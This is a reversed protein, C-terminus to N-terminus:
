DAQIINNEVKFKVDLFKEITYINAFVHPTIESAYIKGKFLALFPLLQDALFRDVCAKSSIQLILGEAAKQGIHESSVGREGITDFGLRIPNQMNIEDDGFNAILTIISGTSLSNCYDASIQIPVKYKNLLSQASRAQRIAVEAGEIDKSALSSIQISLLNKRDMLTILKQEILKEPTIRMNIIGGGKPYFGRKELQVDIKAYKQIHPLLINTFYDFSPSFHVDTGGIIKLKVSKKAFICPLLITQLLLTISGATGIDIDITGGKIEGPMFEVEQSGIYTGSAKANCLQELAKIGCLHQAKLGPEPRNTRINTIKFPKQTIASLALATRLIQGGGEHYSGDIEIM